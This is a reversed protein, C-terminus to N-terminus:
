MARKIAYIALWQGAEEAKDAIEDILDVSDRLHMKQDLPLTSQFIKNKLRLRIQDAETEYFSVKPTYDRVALPNRFYTRAAIILMELSKIAMATLDKFEQKMEDSIKPKEILLEQFNDECIDILFYLSQLLKLVDGRADPILMETYLQTVIFRSLEQSRRKAEILQELKHDCSENACVQDIFAIIGLEFCMGGESIKDLFEDIQSEIFRSKVM